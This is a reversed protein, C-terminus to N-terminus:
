QPSFGSSVVITETNAHQYLVFGNGGRVGAMATDVFKVTTNGTDFRYGGQANPLVVNGDALVIIGDFMGHNPGNWTGGPADGEPAGPIFGYSEATITAGSRQLLFQQGQVNLLSTGNGSRSSFLKPVVNDFRRSTTPVASAVTIAPTTVAGQANIGKVTWQRQANLEVVVMEDGDAFGTAKEAATILSCSDASYLGSSTMYVGDNGVASLDNSSCGTDTVTHTALGLDLDFYTFSGATLKGDPSVMVSVAASQIYENPPPTLKVLKNLTMEGAASMCMIGYTLTVFEQGAAFGRGLFSLVVCGVKSVPSNSRSESFSVGYRRFQYQMGQAQQVLQDVPLAGVVTNKGAADIAEVNYGGNGDPMCLFAAGETATCLYYNATITNVKVMPSTINYVDWAGGQQQAILLKGDASVAWQGAVPVTMDTSAVTVKRETKARPVPAQWGEEPQIEKNNLSKVLDVMLGFNPVGLGTAADWGEVADFGFGNNNYDNNGVTIDTFVEPHQYLLPNLWGLTNGNDKMREWNLQTVMGAFSPAAASTGSESSVKGNVYIQFGQGLVALDPNGRKSGSSAWCDSPPLGKGTVYSSITSAQFAPVDQAWAFGGGSWGYTQDGNLACVSQQLYGTEQQFSTAGIATVYPSSAPWSAYLVQGRYGQRGNYSTGDDGSALIVSVGKTGLTKWDEEVHELVAQPCADDRGDQVGYSISVVNPHVDDQLIAESFAAWSGCFTYKTDGQQDTPNGFSWAWTEAGNGMAILYQSDLNSEGNQFNSPNQEVKFDITCRDAPVDPAYKSCFLSLDSLTTTQQEQYYSQINRKGDIPTPMNDKTINYANRLVEPTVLRKSAAPATDSLPPRTHKKRAVPLDSVGHVVAIVDSLEDPIVLKDLSRTLSQGAQNKYTKFHLGFMEELQQVTASMKIYDEHASVRTKSVGHEKLWATVAAIKEAGPSILARVAETSMKNGYGKSRPDSITYLLTDLMETNRRKLGLMIPLAQSRDVAMSASEHWEGVSLHDLASGHTAQAAMLATTTLTICRM